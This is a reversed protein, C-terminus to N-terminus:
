FMATRVKTIAKFVDQRGARLADVALVDLVELTLNVGGVAIAAAAAAPSPSTRHSAKNADLRASDTSASAGGDGGRCARKLDEYPHPTRLILSARFDLVTMVTDVQLQTAGSESLDSESLGREMVSMGGRASSSSSSSSSSSLLGVTPVSGSSAVHGHLFRLARCKDLLRKILRALRVSNDEKNSHHVPTRSSASSAPTGDAMVDDGSRTGQMKDASGVCGHDQGEGGAATTGPRDAGPDAPSATDAEADAYVDFVVHRLSSCAMLLARQMFLGRSSTSPLLDQLSASAMYFEAALTHLQQRLTVSTASLFSSLPSTTATTTATASAKTSTTQLTTLYATADVIHRRSPTNRMTAMTSAFLACNWAVRSMEEVEEEIVEVRCSSSSLSTTVAVESTRDRSDMGQSEESRDNRGLTDAMALGFPRGYISHLHEFGKRLRVLMECARGWGAATGTTISSPLTPSSSPAAVAAVDAMADVDNAHDVAAGTGPPANATASTLPVLSSIAKRVRDTLSSAGLVDSFSSSTSSSSSSSTELAATLAQADLKILARVFVVTNLGVLGSPVSSSSSSTSASTNMANAELTGDRAERNNARSNGEVVDGVLRALVFRCANKQGAEHAEEALVCLEDGSLAGAEDLRALTRLAATERGLRLQARAAQLGAARSSPSIALAAEAASLAQTYHGQEFACQALSVRAHVANAEDRPDLLALVRQLWESASAYDQREFDAM